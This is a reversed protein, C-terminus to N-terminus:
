GDDDQLYINVSTPSGLKVAPESSSVMVVKFEEIPEVLGDNIIPITISKPGSEGPEFTVDVTRPM